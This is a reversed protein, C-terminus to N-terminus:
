IKFEVQVHNTKYCNQESGTLCAWNLRSKLREPHSGDHQNRFKANCRNRLAFIFNLIEQVLEALSALSLGPLSPSRLTM